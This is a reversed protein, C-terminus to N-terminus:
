VILKGHLAAKRAKSIAYVLKRIVVVFDICLKERQKQWDNKILCSMFDKKIPKFRIAVNEAESSAQIDNSPISLRLIKGARKDLAQM